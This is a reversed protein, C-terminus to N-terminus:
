QGNPSRGWWVKGRLEEIRDVIAKEAERLKPLLRDIVADPVAKKGRLMEFAQISQRAGELARKNNVINGCLVDDEYGMAHGGSIKACAMHIGIWAEGILEGIDEDLGDDSKEYPKLADRVEEAVRDCTAYAPIQMMERDEKDGFPDYGDVEVSPSEDIEIENDNDDDGDDDLEEQEDKAAELDDALDNWGMERAVKQHCDPDEHLTELLEGFRAARVDSEKMMKEWEEETMPRDDDAEDPM